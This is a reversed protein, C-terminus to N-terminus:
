KIESLIDILYPWIIHACRFCKKNQYIFIKITKFYTGNKDVIDLM